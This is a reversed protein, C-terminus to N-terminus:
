LRRYILIAAAMGIISAISIHILISFQVRIVELNLVLPSELGFSTGYNLWAMYPLVGVYKGIFGGIVIGALLFIFFIWVNNETKRM